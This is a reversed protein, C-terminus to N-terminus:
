QYEAEYSRAHRACLPWRPDVRPLGCIRAAQGRTSPVLCYGELVRIVEDAVDLATATIM